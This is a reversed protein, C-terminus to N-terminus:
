VEYPSYTGAKSLSSPPSPHHDARHSVFDKQEGMVRHRLEKWPM